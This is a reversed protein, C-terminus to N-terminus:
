PLAEPEGPPADDGAPQPPSSPAPSPAAPEAEVVPSFRPSRPAEAMRPHADLVADVEARRAALREPQFASQRAARQPEIQLQRALADLRHEVLDNVVSDEASARVSGPKLGPDAQLTWAPASSRGAEGAEDGAHRQLWPQLLALDDPHLAIRVAPSKSGLEDVCRRVLREIAQPGLALEGLVLQEALHLALRKLPEHLREPSHRLEELGAQLADIRERLAQTESHQQVQMAQRVEDRGHALGNQYAQLRAEELDQETFLGAAPPLEQVPAALALAPEPEAPLAMEDTPPEPEDDPLAHAPRAPMNMPAFQRPGGDGWRSPVFGAGPGLHLFDTAQWVRATREADLRALRPESM